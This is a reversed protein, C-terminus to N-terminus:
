IQSCMDVCTTAPNANISTVFPAYRDDDLGGLIYGKLEDQHVTKGVAVLEQVFGQMTAIYQWASMDQKKTNILAGRLFNV